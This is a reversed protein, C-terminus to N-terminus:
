SPHKVINNMASDSAAATGAKAVSDVLHKMQDYSMGGSSKMGNIYFTPTADVNRRVAEAANANIRSQYKKADYCQEWQAMNLGISKALGLFVPKPNDTVEGTETPSLGWQDQSAFLQDHMEWFKGQENACAAAMSADQSNKHMPLPFDYYKYYITGTNVLSKRVDPETITAYRGCSPCEFDAFEEVVVSAKPNGLTYPDPPGAKAYQQRLQDYAEQNQQQSPPNKTLYLIAGGGIVVIAILAGFFIARNSSPGQSPTQGPRSSKPPNNNAM